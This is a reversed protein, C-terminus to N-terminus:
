AGVEADGAPQEDGAAMAIGHLFLARGAATRFRREAFEEPAGVGFARFRALADAAEAVRGSQGLASALWAYAPAFHPRLDIAQRLLGTADVFRGQLLRAAGLDSLAEFRSASLPDLRMATEIHEVALDPEGMAVRLRGSSLWTAASGPNLALARQILPAIEAADRGLIVGIDAVACLVAADDSAAQLARRALANAQERHGARAEPPAALSLVTHLSGAAALAPGFAPDLAIARDLLELARPFEAVHATASISQARLYLDYGGMNETPRKAARQIEAELVTPEIVGAVSLAVRDQLAFVDVLTDEFRDAWVQAGSTADTLRVAIRVREGAKRVSGELVYRVGLRVGVTQPSVAQDKFSLTSSSGIVFISKHRSLAAVIEEVMGDAFYAQEPDGSLNAFPMVAISPKSPLSLSPEPGPPANAGALQEISALVKRWGPAAVDGPWGRLDACQIQDFPIPPSTADITAQVLKRAERGRDAEARVWESRVADASWIVVVAKAAKLREDIVDAYPRHAPLADDLWVDYGLARLADAVRQAQDATPRAYSIFIDSL